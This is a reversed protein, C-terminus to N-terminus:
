WFIVCIAALMLVIVAGATNFVPGDCVARRHASRPKGPRAEGHCALCHRWDGLLGSFCDMHPDRIALRAGRSWLLSLVVSSILLAFAGTTNARRWFLGLLDSCGRGSHCLRWPVASGPRARNCNSVRRSGVRLWMPTCPSTRESPATFTWPSSPGAACRGGYARTNPSGVGSFM